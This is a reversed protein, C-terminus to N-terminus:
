EKEANRIPLMNMSKKYNLTRLTSALMFKIAKKGPTTEFYMERKRADPEFLYLECFVLHLPRRLATSKTNGDAHNVLRKELNGTFGTYLM